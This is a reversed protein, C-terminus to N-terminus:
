RQDLKALGKKDSLCYQVQELLTASAKEFRDILADERAQHNRYARASAQLMKLDTKQIGRRTGLTKELKKANQDLVVTFAENKKSYSKLLQSQATRMAKLDEILDECKPAAVAPVTLSLVFLVGIQFQM